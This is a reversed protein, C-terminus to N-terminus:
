GEAVVVSQLIFNGDIGLKQHIGKLFPVDPQRKKNLIQSIKSAPMNLAEALSNQNIKLEFMKYEIARILDAPPAPAPVSRDSGQETAPAPTNKNQTEYAEVLQVMGELSRLEEVPLNHVGKKMQRDIEAIANEYDEVSITQPIHPQTM